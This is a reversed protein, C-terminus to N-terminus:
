AGQGMKEKLFRLARDRDQRSIFLEIKHFFTNVTEVDGKKQLIVRIGQGELGIRIVEAEHENHTAHICVYNEEVKKGGM